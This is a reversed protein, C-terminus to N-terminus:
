ARVEQETRRRPRVRLTRNANDRVPLAELWARLDDAAILTRAGAKRARLRGAKIELYLFTRGVGALRAADRPMYALPENAM